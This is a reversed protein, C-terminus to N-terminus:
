YSLAKFQTVTETKNAEIYADDCVVLTAVRFFHWEGMIFPDRRKRSGGQPKKAEGSEGAVLVAGEASSELVVKFCISAPSQVIKM